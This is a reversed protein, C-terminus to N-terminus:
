IQNNQMLTLFVHIKGSTISLIWIYFLSHVPTAFRKHAWSLTIKINIERPVLPIFVLIVSSHVCLCNTVLTCVMNWKKCSMVFGCIGIFVATKVPRDRTESTRNVNQQLRWLRNSIVDRHGSLQSVIMHISIDLEDPISKIWPSIWLRDYLFYTNKVKCISTRRLLSMINVLLTQRSNEPHDPSCFHICVWNCQQGRACLYMWTAGHWPQPVSQKSHIFPTRKHPMNWLNHSINLAKTFPHFTVNQNLRYVSFITSHNVGQPRAVCIHTPFRVMMPESFPKDGLRRWAM